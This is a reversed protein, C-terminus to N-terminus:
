PLPQQGPTANPKENDPEEDVGGLPTEGADKMPGFMSPVAAGINGKAGMGGLEQKRDEDDPMRPMKGESALINSLSAELNIFFNKLPWDRAAEIAAADMLAEIEEINIAGDYLKKAEWVEIFKKISKEYEENVGEYTRLLQYLQIRIRRRHWDNIDEGDYFELIPKPTNQALNKAALSIWERDFSM